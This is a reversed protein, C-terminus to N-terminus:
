VRFLGRFGRGAYYSQAGNHYTFVRNFRRDGFLAGGLDRMESPTALWSSTKLDFEGLSQLVQYEAETLLSIGIVKAMDMASTKPRAEKRSELGARDYCLSRRGEPSEASCDCYLYTKTKAEYGIVDPEGGTREMEALVELQPESLRSAVDAWRLGKHRRANEEFRAELTSLLGAAPKRKM